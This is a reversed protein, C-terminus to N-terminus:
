PLVVEKTFMRITELLGNVFTRKKKKECRCDNMYVVFHERLYNLHGDPVM